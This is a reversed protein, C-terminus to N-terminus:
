RDTDSQVYQPIKLVTTFIENEQSTELLDARAFLLYLRRRIGELGFGTGRPMQMQPDYPNTTTIYLMGEQLRINMTIKVQGTKGYLGFKIANELVPQLLFPPITASDTYEKEFVVNLRDGFRITEISLYAEIYNLEEDISNLSNYLFHPQLQQRLKYLEAEKLLATADSQQAFRKRVEDLQKQMAIITAVWCTVIWTVAFHVLIGDKVLAVVATNEEAVFRLLVNDTVTVAISLATAISLAYTVIGVRTPYANVIILLAWVALTQTITVTFGATISLTSDAQAIEHFLYIHLAALLCFLPLLLTIVYKKVPQM